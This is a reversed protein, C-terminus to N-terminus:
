KPRPETMLMAPMLSAVAAKQEDTGCQEVHDRVILYHSILAQREDQPAPVGFRKYLWWGAGLVLCALGLLQTNM